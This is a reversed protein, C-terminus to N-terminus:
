AFVAVRLKVAALLLKSSAIATVTATKPIPEPAAKAALRADDLTDVLLATGLLRWVAPALDAPFTVWDIVRGRVQPSAAIDFDTSLTGLRDLCLIEVAGGGDGLARRIDKAAQRVDEFRDALLMEDAGALAAEVAPAHEVDTDLFDGLMGRLASLEGKRHAELVRRTGEVNVERYHSRPVNLERFAAALHQVVDVGRMCRAVVDEDTVSGIVV